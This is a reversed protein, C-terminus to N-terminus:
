PGKQCVAVLLWSTMSVASGNMKITVIVSRRVLPQLCTGPLGRRENSLCPGGRPPVSRTRCRRNSAQLLKHLARDRTVPELPHCKQLPTLNVVSRRDGDDPPNGGSTTPRKVSYKSTVLEIQGSSNRMLSGRGKGCPRPFAVNACSVHCVPPSAAVENWM